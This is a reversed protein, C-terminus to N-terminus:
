SKGVFFNGFSDREPVGDVKVKGTAPKVDIEEECDRCYIYDFDLPIYRKGQGGCRCRYHCRYRKSGDSDEKIGTEWHEPASTNKRESEKVKATESLPFTTREDMGVIPLKRSIGKTREAANKSADASPEETAIPQLPADKAKEIEAKLKELNLADHSQEAHKQPPSSTFAKTLERGIRDRLVEKLLRTTDENRKAENNNVHVNVVPDFEVGTKGEENWSDFARKILFQQNDQDVGEFKMNKSVQGVKINMEFNM